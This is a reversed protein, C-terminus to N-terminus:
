TSWRACTPPTTPRAHRPGRGPHSRRCGRQPRRAAARRPQRVVALGSDQGVPKAGARCLKIGNYQAPNHSATFMAGPLDLAGSAYYLQDTSGLGINVVAAGAANAGRAFAAPLGPGSERMDHALVIQDANDGSERLMEVFATGLARAVSENFQDPVTGRVDYAKVIKSLDSM